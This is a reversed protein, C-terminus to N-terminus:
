ITDLLTSNVGTPVVVAMSTDRRGASCSCELQGRCRARATGRGAGHRRWFLRRRVSRQSREEESRNPDDRMQDPDASVRSPRRRPTPWRRRPEGADAPRGRDQRHAPAEGGGQDTASQAPARLRRAPAGVRRLHIRRCGGAAWLPQTGSLAGVTPAHRRRAFRCGRSRQNPVRFTRIPVSSDRKRAARRTQASPSGHHDSGLGRKRFPMADFREFEPV